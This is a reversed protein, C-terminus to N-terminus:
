ADWLSAHEPCVRSIVHLHLHHMSPISHFGLQYGCDSPHDAIWQQAVAQIITM